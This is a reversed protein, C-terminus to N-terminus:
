QTYNHYFTVFVDSLESGVPLLKMGFLLTTDM